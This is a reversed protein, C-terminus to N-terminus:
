DRGAGIRAAIAAALLLTGAAGVTISWCNWWSRSRRRQRYREAAWEDDTGM